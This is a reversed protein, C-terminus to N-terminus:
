AQLAQAAACRACICALRRQAAPVRALPAESFDAQMCWCEPQAIGSEREVEM